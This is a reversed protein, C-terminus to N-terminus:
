WDSAVPWIKPTALYIFNFKDQERNLITRFNSLHVCDWHNSTSNCPLKWNLIINTKNCYFVEEKIHLQITIKFFISLLFFFKKIMESHM